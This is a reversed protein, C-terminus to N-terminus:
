DKDSERLLMLFLEGIGQALQSASRVRVYSHGFIQTINELNHLNGHFVGGVRLGERRLGAVAQAALQVAAAGEYEKRKGGATLPASDNPSGDTLILLLRKKGPMIMDDNLRGLTRFALADRNWGGSFFSMLGQCDQNNWPKLIELVTHSRLSRFATVRVPINSKELSKALIYTEAALLEQSNLRSQSADLLLDVCIDSEVDDSNKLFVRDDQLLPLRYAKEAQLRGRRANEPSPRLYSSFITDLQASLKKIHLQVQSAHEKLFAENRERQYRAAEMIKAAESDAMDGQKGSSIWLRTGENEGCCLDEELIRLEAESILCPGFVARIYDRDERSPGAYRGLGEHRQAVAREHDGEGSGTRVIMRDKRQKEHRRLSRLVSAAASRKRPSGPECRFFQKLFSEMAALVAETDWSGPFLLAEAMKKERPTMLPGRQGCVASWRAQQQTYVAMSQHEMQQRSMDEQKKFFRRGREQRLLDLFPREEVEKEYLCNELGLWLYADFEEARPHTEYSTFFVWLPSLGLWKDALGIMMDFYYDAEGDPYFALFPPEFDYRGAANWITNRARRAQATFNKKIM